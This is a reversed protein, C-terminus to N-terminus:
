HSRYARGMDQTTQHDWDRDRDNWISGRGQDQNNRNELM